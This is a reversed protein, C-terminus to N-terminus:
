SIKKKKQLIPIKQLSAEKNWEAAAAILTAIELRSFDSWEHLTVSAISARNKQQLQPFAMALDKGRCICFHLGHKDAHLYCFMGYYHYFPLKFSFREEISPVLEFLMERLRQAMAQQPQSLSELYADINRSAAASIM